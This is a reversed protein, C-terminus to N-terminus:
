LVFPLLMRTRRMYAPYQEPFETIMIREERRAAYVFYVSFLLLPVAWFVSAGITTGLMAVIVGGYIPHRLYAYPGSMVLEPNEKRSVPMGWNRGLHVRAAAMLGIGAACLIVGIIGALASRAQDEQLRRFLHRVPPVAFLLLVLVGVLLRLGIEKWTGRTGLTRKVGIASVAWYAGLGLWLAVILWRYITM